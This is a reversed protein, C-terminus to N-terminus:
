ELAPGTDGVQPRRYLDDSPVHYSRSAFMRAKSRSFVQYDLKEGLLEAAQGGQDALFENKKESDNDSENSEQRYDIRVGYDFVQNAYM